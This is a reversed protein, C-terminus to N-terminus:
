GLLLENFNRRRLECCDRVSWFFSCGVCFRGVFAGSVATLRQSCRIESAQGLEARFKAKATCFFLDRVQQQFLARIGDIYVETPSRKEVVHAHAEGFPVFNREGARLHLLVPGIEDQRPLHRFSAIRQAGLRSLRVRRFNADDFRVREQM